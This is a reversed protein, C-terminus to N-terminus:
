WSFKLMREAPDETQARAVDLPTLVRFCGNTVGELNAFDSCVVLGQYSRENVQKWVLMTDEAGQQYGEYFKAVEAEQVYNSSNCSALGATVGLLASLGAVIVLKARGSLTNYASKLEEFVFKSM